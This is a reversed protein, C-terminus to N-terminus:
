NKVEFQKAASRMEEVEADLDSLRGKATQVKSNDGLQEYVKVLENLAVKECAIGVLRTIFLGEKNASLERGVELGYILCAEARVYDNNTVCFKAQATVDLVFSRTKKATDVVEAMAKKQGEPSLQRYENETITKMYPRDFIGLSLRKEEMSANDTLGLEEWFAIIFEDMLMDQQEQSLQQSEDETNSSDDSATSKSTSKYKMLLTDPLAEAKSPVSEIASNNKDASESFLLFLGLTLALCGALVGTIKKKKM